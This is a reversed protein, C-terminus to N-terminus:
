NKKPFFSFQSKRAEKMKEAAAEQRDAFSNSKAKPAEAKKTPKSTQRTADMDRSDTDAEAAKKKEGKMQTTYSKGNWEFTKAGSKRAAAFASGFSGSSKSTQQSSDMDRSETEESSASRAPANKFANAMAADRADEQKQLREEKGRGAGYKRYAVSNPDDINGEAFRGISSKFQDWASKGQLEANSAALGEQKMTEVEGGDAYGKVPTKHFLSGMDRVGTTPKSQGTKKMDKRLWEPCAM